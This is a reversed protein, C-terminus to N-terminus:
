LGLYNSSFCHFHFNLLQANVKPFWASTQPSHQFPGSLLCGSESTGAAGALCEGEM